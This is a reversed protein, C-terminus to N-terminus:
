IKIDFNFNDNETPMTFVSVGYHIGRAKKGTFDIHIKNHLLAPSDRLNWHGDNDKKVDVIYGVIIEDQYSGKFSRHRKAVKGHYPSKLEKQHENVKPHNADTFGFIATNKKSGARNKDVAEKNQDKKALTYINYLDWIKDIDVQIDNIKGISENLIEINKNVQNTDDLHFSVANVSNHIEEQTKTSEILLDEKQRHNPLNKVKINLKISQNKANSLTNLDKNTLPMTIPFLSQDVNSLQSYHSLKFHTIVDTKNALFYEIAGQLNNIGEKNQPPPCGLWHFQISTNINLEEAIKVFDTEVSADFMKGYKTSAKTHFENLSKKNKARCIYLGVFTAGRKTGSIYYDGYRRRFEVYKKSKLLSLAEESITVEESFTSYEDSTSTYQCMITLCSESFNIDKLYNAEFSGKFSGYSIKTNGSISTTRKLHSENM